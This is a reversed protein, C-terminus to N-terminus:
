TRTPTRVQRRVDRTDYWTTVKRIRGDALDFVDLASFTIPQGGDLTGEFRIETVITDGAEIWRTVRDEHAAYGALVGVFHTMAAERGVVPRMGVTHIEVDASFVTGLDAFRDANIAAFYDEVVARSM